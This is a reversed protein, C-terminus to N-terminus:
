NETTDRTKMAQAVMDANWLHRNHKLFLLKEFNVPTLRKRTSRLVHKASSFPREASASTVAIFRLDPYDECVALRQRKRDRLRSAYSRRKGANSGEVPEQPTPRVSFHQVQAKEENTLSEQQGNISYQSRKCYPM